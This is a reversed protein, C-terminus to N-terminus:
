LYQVVTTGLSTLLDLSAIDSYKAYQQWILRILLVDAECYTNLSSTAPFACHSSVNILSNFIILNSIKTGKDIDIMCM